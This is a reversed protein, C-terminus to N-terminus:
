WIKIMIFILIIYIMIKIVIKIIIEEIPRSRVWKYNFKKMFDEFDKLFRNGKAKGEFTYAM